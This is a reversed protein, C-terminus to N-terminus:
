MLLRKSLRPDSPNYWSLIKCSIRLSSSYHNPSSLFLFKHVNQISVWLVLQRYRTWKFSMFSMSNCKSHNSHIYANLVRLKSANFHIITFDVVSITSNHSSLVLLHKDKVFHVESEIVNDAFIWSRYIFGRV